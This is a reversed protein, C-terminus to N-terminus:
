VKKLCITFSADMEAMNELEYGTKWCIQCIAEASQGRCWGVGYTPTLTLKDSVIVTLPVLLVDATPNTPMAADWIFLRGGPKLVRYAESLVKAVEDEQMYMLTYFCTINDFSGDMFGMNCADMVIKLGIDPSEMLEDRRKDIAVVGNGCLRSMVGEGGGGIDVISGQLHIDRLDVLHKELEFVTM